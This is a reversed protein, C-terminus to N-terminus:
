RKGFVGRRAAEKKFESLIVDVSLDYVEVGCSIPPMKLPQIREEGNRHAEALRKIEGLILTTDLVRLFFADLLPRVRGTEVLESWSFRDIGAAVDLSPSKSGSARAEEFLSRILKDVKEWSSSESDNTDVKERDVLKIWNEVTAKNYDM